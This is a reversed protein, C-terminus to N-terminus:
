AAYGLYNSSSCHELAAMWLFTRPKRTAALSVIYSWWTFYKCFINIHLTLDLDRGCCKRFVNHWCYRSCYLLDVGEIHILEVSCEWFCDAWQATSTVAWTTGHKDLLQSLWLSKVLISVTSDLHCGTWHVTFWSLWSCWSLLSLHCGTLHVTFSSLWSWKFM